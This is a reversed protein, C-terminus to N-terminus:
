RLRKLKTRYLKSITSAEGEFLGERSEVIIDSNDFAFGEEYALSKENASTSYFWKFPKIFQAHVDDKVVRVARGNAHVFTSKRARRVRNKHANPVRTMQKLNKLSSTVEVFPKDVPREKIQALKTHDQSLFGVTTDTQVLFVKKALPHSPKDTLTIKSLFRNM